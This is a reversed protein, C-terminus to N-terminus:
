LDYSPQENDQIYKLARYCQFSGKNITEDLRSKLGKMYGRRHKTNLEGAKVEIIYITENTIALLDLENHSIGHNEITDYKLSNYIVSHTLLQQFLQKTKREIYNDRSDPNANNRYM